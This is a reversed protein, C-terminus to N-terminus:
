ITWSSSLERRMRAIWGQDDVGYGRLRNSYFYLLDLRELLVGSTHFDVPPPAHFM